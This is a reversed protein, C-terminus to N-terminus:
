PKVEGGLKLLGERVCRTADEHARTTIVFVVSQTDDEYVTFGDEYEVTAPKENDAVPGVFCNFLQGLPAPSDLEADIQITLPPWYRPNIDDASVHEVSSEPPDCALSAFAFLSILTFIRM